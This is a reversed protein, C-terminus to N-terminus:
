APACRGRTTRRPRGPARRSPDRRRRSDALAPRAGRDTGWSAGHPSPSSVPGRSLVGRAGASWCERRAAGACSPDVGRHASRQAVDVEDSGRAAAVAGKVTDLQTLASPRVDTPEVDDPHERRLPSAGDACPAEDIQESRDVHIIRVREFDPRVRVDAERGHRPQELALRQVGVREAGLLHDARALQVQHGGTVPDGVGLEGRMWREAACLEPDGLRFRGTVTLGRELVM